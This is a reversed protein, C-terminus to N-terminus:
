SIQKISFLTSLFNLKSYITMSSACRILFTSEIREWITRLKIDRPRNSIVPVGKCFLKFSNNAKSLKMHGSINM